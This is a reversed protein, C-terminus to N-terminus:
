LFLPKKKLGIGFDLSNRGKQLDIKEIRRDSGHYVKM